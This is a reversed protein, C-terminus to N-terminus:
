PQRAARQRLEQEAAAVWADRVSRDRRAWPVGTASGAEYLSQALTEVSARNGIQSERVVREPGGEMPKLRYKFEGDEFPMQREIRYEGEPAVRELRGPSVRVFQGVDFKHHTM